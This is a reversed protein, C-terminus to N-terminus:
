KLDKPPIIKSSTVDREKSKSCNRKQKLINSL